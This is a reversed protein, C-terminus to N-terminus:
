HLNGVVAHAVEQLRKGTMRLAQALHVRQESQLSRGGPPAGAPDPIASQALMAEIKDAQQALSDGAMGLEYAIMRVTRGNLQEDGRMAGAMGAMAARADDMAGEITSASRRDLYGDGKSRAIEASLSSETEELLAIIWDIEERLAPELYLRTQAWDEPGNSRPEPPVVPLPSPDDGALVAGPLALIALLLSTRVGVCVPSM